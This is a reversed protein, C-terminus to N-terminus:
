SLVKFTWSHKVGFKSHITNLVTTRMKHNETVKTFLIIHARLVITVLFAFPQRQSATPILAEVFPWFFPLSPDHAHLHFCPHFNLTKLTSAHDARSTLDFINHKPWACFATSEFYYFYLFQCTLHSRDTSTPSAHSFKLVLLWTVTSTAPYLQSCREMYPLWVKNVNSNSSSPGLTSPSTFLKQLAASHRELYKPVLFLLM